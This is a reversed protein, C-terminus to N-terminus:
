AVVGRDLLGGRMERQRWLEHFLFDREHLTKMPCKKKTRQGQMGLNHKQNDISEQLMNMMTHLILLM